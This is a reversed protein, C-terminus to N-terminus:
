SRRASLEGAATTEAVTFELALLNSRFACRRPEVSRSDSDRRMSALREVNKPHDLAMRYSVRGGRDHGILIFTPFGLKVMVEVLETAMARKSYPFHDDTSAPIGSRGYARLDVCIVSHSEALKPALDRWMLSTRPFGHVMLIAPGKGYRRVFIKSGSVEVLSSEFSDQGAISGGTKNSTQGRVPKVFANEQLAGFSAAILGGLFTRREM